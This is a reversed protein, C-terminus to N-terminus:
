QKRRGIPHMRRRNLAPEQEGYGFLWHSEPATALSYQCKFGIQNYDGGM